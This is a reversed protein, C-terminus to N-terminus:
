EVLARPTSAARDMIQQQTEWSLPRFPLNKQALAAAFEADAITAAVAKRL